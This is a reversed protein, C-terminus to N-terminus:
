VKRKIVRNTSPLSDTSFVPDARTLDDHYCKFAYTHALTDNSFVLIFHVCSCNM